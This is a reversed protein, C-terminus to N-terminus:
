LGHPRLVTPCLQAVLVKVSEYLHITFVASFSPGLDNEQFVM